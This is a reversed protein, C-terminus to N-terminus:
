TRRPAVRPLRVTFVTGAERTSRAEVNGGHATAIQQVIYLGLGLGSTAARGRGEGRRFPEFLVPLLEPPIPEGQNRVEIRVHTGEDQLALTIPTDAPSYDVANKLLNGIVQALRDPDWEGQLDGRAELRLPRAPHAVELESLVRRGLPGLDIPAPTIPIGGGLRGRTLDLLDGIMRGMLEANLAIRQAVRLAREPLTHQRLLV